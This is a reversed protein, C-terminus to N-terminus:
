MHAPGDALFGAILQDNMCVRGADDGRGVLRAAHVDNATRTSAM